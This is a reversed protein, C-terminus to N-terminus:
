DIGNVAPTLIVSQSPSGDKACRFGLFNYKVEPPYYTRYTARLYRGSRNWSVGRIVKYYGKAAGKPNEKVKMSYYDQKYWDQCWELVNGEMDYVGFANPTFVGVPSAYLYNDSYGKKIPFRLKITRITEDAINGYNLVYTGTGGYAYTLSTSKGCRAVYEWEAETPLRKGAWKAYAWAQKWTVNVVPYDNGNWDPQKPMDVQVTRCFRRFEAVTVEYKDFYFSNVRM